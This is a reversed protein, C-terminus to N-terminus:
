LHVPPAWVKTSDYQGLAYAKQEVGLNFGQHAACFALLRQYRDEAVNAYEAPLPQWKIVAQIKEKLEEKSLHGGEEEILSEMPTSSKREGEV